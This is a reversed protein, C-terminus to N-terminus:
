TILIDGMENELLYLRGVVDYFCSYLFMSTLFVLVNLRLFLLFLFNPLSSVPICIPHNAKELPLFDTWLILKPKLTNSLGLFFSLENLISHLAKM